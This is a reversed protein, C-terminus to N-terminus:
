YNSIQDAVQTSTYPRSACQAHAFLSWPGVELRASGPVRNRTSEDGVSAEELLKSLLRGFQPQRLRQIPSRANM